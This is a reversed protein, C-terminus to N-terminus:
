NKRSPQVFKRVPIKALEMLSVCGNTGRSDLGDVYFALGLDAGLSVMEANRLPGASKGYYGWNAPHREIIADPLISKALFEALLDAGRAHGHVITLPQQEAWERLEELAQAM